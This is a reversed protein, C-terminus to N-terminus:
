YLVEIYSIAVMVAIGIGMAALQRISQKVNEEQLLQPLITVMAIFIFGGATFPLIWITPDTVGEAVLGTVAGIIGGSATAIQAKAASWRDFGANLLIAFDGVEHPIEHLLIAVTTLVGVKFGVTYSAAIALGHTFNDTCNAALNLYGSIDIKKSGDKSDSPRTAPSDTDVHHAVGNSVVGNPIVGNVGNLKVGNKTVGHKTAGTQEVGKQAVGNQMSGKHTVGRKQHKDEEHCDMQTNRERTDEDERGETESALKQILMFALLGTLVWLGAGLHSEYWKESQNMAVRGYVEPLLHLFVDGLLGGVAFGLLTKHFDSLGANTKTDIDLIFLPIIGTLGVLSASILPFIWM